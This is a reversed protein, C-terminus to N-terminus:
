GRSVRQSRKYFVITSLKASARKDGQFILFCIAYPSMVSGGPHGVPWHGLQQVPIELFWGESNGWTPLDLTVTSWPRWTGNQLAPGSTLILNWLSQCRYVLCTLIFTTKSDPSQNEYSWSNTSNFLCAPKRFRITAQRKPLPFFQPLVPFSQKPKWRRKRSQVYTDRGQIFLIFSQNDIKSQHCLNPLLNHVHTHKNVKAAFLCPCTQKWFM